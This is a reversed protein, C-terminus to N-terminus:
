HAAKRPFSVISIIWLGIGHTWIVRMVIEKWLMKVLFPAKAKSLLVRLLFSSGM